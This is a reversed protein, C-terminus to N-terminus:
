RQCPPRHLVCVLAFCHYRLHYRVECRATWYAIDFATAPDALLARAEDAMGQAHQILAPTALAGGTGPTNYARAAEVLTQIDGLFESESGYYCRRAQATTFPLCTVTKHKCSDARVMWVNHWIKLMCVCVCEDQTCVCGSKSAGWGCRVSQHFLCRM